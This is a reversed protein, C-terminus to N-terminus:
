KCICIVLGLSYRVRFGRKPLYIACMDYVLARTKFQQFAKIKYDSPCIIIDKKVAFARNNLFM